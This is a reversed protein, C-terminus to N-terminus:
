RGDSGTLLHIRLGDDGQARLHRACAGALSTGLGRDLGELDRDLGELTRVLAVALDGTGQDKGTTNYSQQKRPLLYQNLLKIQAKFFSTLVSGDEGREFDANVALLPRGSARQLREWATREALVGKVARAPRARYSELFLVGRTAPVALFELFEKQDLGQEQIHGYRDSLIDSPLWAHGGGMTWGRGALYLLLSDGAAMGGALEEFKARIAAVAVPGILEHVSVPRGQRHLGRFAAALREAGRSPRGTALQRYGYDGVGIVLVHVTAPAAPDAPGHVSLVAAQSELQNDADFASIELRNEGPALRLPQELIGDAGVGTAFAVTVGNLRVRIRGIGGGRDSLKLRLKAEAAPFRAGDAPALIRIEPASSVALLARVDGIAVLETLFRGRDSETLKRAVLDPRYFDEYLREVAVFEAARERGRNLQYGLLREGGPSHDFFGEPTWAVWREGDAHPFLALLEEGDTLRYWRITGDGLAAVGLRGDGSVNVGWVVGPVQAQWVQEGSRHYYRLSWDTGLLFHRGDPAIALSRV